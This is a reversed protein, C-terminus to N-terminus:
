PLWLGVGAILGPSVSIKTTSRIATQGDEPGDTRDDYSLRIPDPDPRITTRCLYSTQGSEIM